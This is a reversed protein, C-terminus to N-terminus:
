SSKAKFDSIVLCQCLLSVKKKKKDRNANPNRKEDLIM